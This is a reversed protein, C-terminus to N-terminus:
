EQQEGGLSFEKYIHWNEEESLRVLLCLSRLKIEAFRAFTDSFLQTLENKSEGSHPNLLTFHPSYSDFVTPSYFKLTRQVRYQRKALKEPNGLHRRLYGSGTGLPHIRAAIVSHLIKLRDNPDYRLVVAPGWFTVFGKERRHLTFEKTPNFCGLIDVLESEITSIRGWDFDISDGVTLHFGYPKAKQLWQDAFHPIQQLKALTQASKRKRIDYGVVSSGLTYLDDNAEPVYYVAFKPM